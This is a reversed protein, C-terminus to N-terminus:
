EEELEIDEADFFYKDCQFFIKKSKNSEFKIGDPFFEGGFEFFHIRLSVDYKKLLAKLEKKFEENM